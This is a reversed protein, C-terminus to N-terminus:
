SADVGSSGSFLLSVTRNSIGSKYYVFEVGSIPELYIVAELSARQDNDLSSVSAAGIPPPNHSPTRLLLESAGM